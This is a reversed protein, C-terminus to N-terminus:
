HAMETDSEGYVRLLMGQVPSALDSAVVRENGVLGGSVFVFDRGRFVVDVDRIDLRNEGDMVWAKNGHRVLRRPIRAVNEVQVGDIEIRVYDNLLLAPMTSHEDELSLPDDIEIILRAMRGSQDLDGAVRILTAPRRTGASWASESFVRAESGGKGDSDPMRLWQLQHAPIMCEIWYSDTGAIQAVTSVPSVQMGVNAHRSLIVANFPVRIEARAKDLVAKELSAEAAQVAAKARELQPKRLALAMEEESLEGGVLLFEREALASRGMELSLESRALTVDSSRQKIALDFDTPDLSAVLEGESFFAGPQFKSSVTMIQGSVRPQLAASLAPKVNGMAHIVATESSLSVPVVEVLRARREPSTTRAQPATKVTIIVAAAGATLVILPMAIRAVRWLSSKRDAIDPLTM